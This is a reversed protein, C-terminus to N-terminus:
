GQSKNVNKNKKNNVNLLLQLVMDKQLPKHLVMDKALNIDMVQFQHHLVMLQLLQPVTAKKLKNVFPKTNLKANKSMPQPANKNMLPKTSPKANKSTSLKMSQRVNKGM